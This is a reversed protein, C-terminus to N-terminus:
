GLGAIKRDTRADLQKAAALVVKGGLWRVPEAPWKRVKREFPAALEHTEGCVRAALMEGLLTAQAIGHGSYGLAHFVNKHQGSTGLLPLSDTTSAVWGGWRATVGIPGLMPFRTRISRELIAFSSEDGRTSMANGREFHVTRTGAAIGGRPTWRYTEPIMHRTSIGEQGGWGVASRQEDSLPETEICCVRLALLSRGFRDLSPTFANTALVVAPATVSGLPTVVRVNAGDEIQEVASGEFIRVSAALAADRLGRVYKGPDLIGGPEHMLGCRFAVPIDRQRMEEGSVFAVRAGLESRRRAEEEVKRDQGPHLSVSLNGNPVYDADIGLTQMRMEAFEVAQDSFRFVTRAGEVGLSRVLASAPTSVTTSLHGSNSGSAGAGAYERELVVVDFGRERLALAASLGTYGAGVIVVDAQADGELGPRTEGTPALWPNNTNM